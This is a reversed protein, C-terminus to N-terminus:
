IVQPSYVGVGTLLCPKSVRLSVTDWVRREHELLDKTVGRLRQCKQLSLKFWNKSTWLAIPFQWRSHSRVSYITNESCSSIQLDCSENWCKWLLFFPMQGEELCCRGQRRTAASFELGFEPHTRSDSTSLPITVREYGDLGYTNSWTPTLETGKPRGYCTWLDAGLRTIPWGSFFNKVDTPQWLTRRYIVDSEYWM